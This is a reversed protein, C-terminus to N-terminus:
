KRHYTFTSSKGSGEFYLVLTDPSLNVIKQKVVRGDSYKLVLMDGSVSWKADDKMANTIANNIIDTGEDGSGASPLMADHYNGNADLDMASEYNEGKLIWTGVMKDKDFKAGGCAPLLVIATLLLLLHRLSKM